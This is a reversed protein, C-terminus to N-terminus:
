NECGDDIVVKEIKYGKCTINKTRATKISSYAVGLLRALEQLTDTMLVIRELRNNEVACFVTM